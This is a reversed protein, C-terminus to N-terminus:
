NRQDENRSRRRVVQLIAELSTPKFLLATDSALLAARLAQDDEPRTCSFYLVFLSPWRARLTAAAWDGRGDRLRFELLAVEPGQTLDRCTREMDRMCHATHVTHGCERLLEAIAQCTAASSDVVLIPGAEGGVSDRHVHNNRESQQFSSARATRVKLFALKASAAIKSSM